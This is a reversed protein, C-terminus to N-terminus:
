LTIELPIAQTFPTHDPQSVCFTTLTAVAAHKKKLQAVAGSVLAEDRCEDLVREEATLNDLDGTAGMM